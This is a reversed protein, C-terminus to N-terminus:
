EGRGYQGRAAGRRVRQARGQADVSCSECAGERRARCNVGDIAPAGDRREGCREEVCVEMCLMWSDSSSTLTLTLTLTLIRILGLRVRVRARVRARVSVRVLAHRGGERQPM